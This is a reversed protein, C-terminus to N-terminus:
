SASLDRVLASIGNWMIQLGICLLLFASLRTVVSMATAGLRSALRDAYGYCFFISLAVLLCAVLAAVLAMLLRGGGPSPANAGLTVAVSISGPGVTLPLTLPYFAQRGSRSAPAGVTPEPRAYALDAPAPRRQVMETRRSDEVSMTVARPRADVTLRSGSIPRAAVTM